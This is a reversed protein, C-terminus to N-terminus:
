SLTNQPSFSSKSFGKRFVRAKSLSRKIVELCSTQHHRAGSSVESCTASGVPKLVFSTAPTRGGASVSPQLFWEKEKKITAVFSGFLVLSLGESTMVKSFMRRIIAFLPFLYMKLHDWPHQFAEEKSFQPDPVPSLYIPCNRNRFTAFPDVMPRRCVKCIKEFVRPLFSFNQMVFVQDHCSLQDTVM